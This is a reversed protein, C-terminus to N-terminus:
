RKSDQHKTYLDLYKQEMDAYKKELAANDSVTEELQQRYQTLEANIEEEKILEQKLLASLQEQLFTNEEELVAIVDSLEHNKDNVADICAQLRQKDEVELQLNGVLGHLEQIRQEQVVIVQRIQEVGEDLNEFSGDLDGKIKDINALASVGSGSPLAAEQEGLDQIIESFEHQIHRLQEMLTENETRLEDMAGRLAPSQEAKPVSKDIEDHLRRSLAQGAELRLKIDFFNERFQELNAIRQRSAELKQQLAAVLTASAPAASDDAPPPPAEDAVWDAFVAGVSLWLKQEDVGSSDAVKRECKLLNLRVQIAAALPANKPESQELQKLYAEAALIQTQLLQVYDDVTAAAPRENDAARVRENRDSIIRVYLQYLGILLIIELAAFLLFQGITM